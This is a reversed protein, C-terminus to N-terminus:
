LMMVFLLFFFILVVFIKIMLWRNSTLGQYYKLLQNHAGEVNLEVDQINEDIRQVTERQGALVTMFNSYIQIFSVLQAFHRFRDFCAPM